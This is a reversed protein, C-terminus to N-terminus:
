MVSEKGWGEGVVMGSPVSGEAAGLALTSSDQGGPAAVEAEYVGDLEVVPPCSDGGPERDAGKANSVGELEAGPLTSAEPPGVSEKGSADSVAKAIAESGEVAVPRAKDDLGMEPLLSSTQDPFDVLPQFRLLLLMVDLLPVGSGQGSPSGPEEILTSRPDAVVSMDTRTSAAGRAEGPKLNLLEDNLCPISEVAAASTAGAAVPKRDKASKLKLIEDNLCPTSSEAPSQGKQPAQQPAGPRKMIEPRRAPPPGLGFKQRQERVSPMYDDLTKAVIAGEDGEEEDVTFNDVQVADVWDGDETSLDDAEDDYGAKLALQWERQLEHVENKRPLHFPSNVATVGATAMLYQAEGNKVSPLLEVFKEVSENCKSGVLKFFDEYMADVKAEDLKAKPQAPPASVVSDSATSSEAVGPM